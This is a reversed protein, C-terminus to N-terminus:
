HWAGSPSNQRIAPYVRERGLYDVGSISGSIRFPLLCSQGAIKKKKKLYAM